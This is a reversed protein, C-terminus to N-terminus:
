KEVRLVVQVSNTETSKIVLIEKEKLNLFAKKTEEDFSENGLTTGTREFINGKIGNFNDTGIVFGSFVKINIKEKNFDCTLKTPTLHIRFPNLNGKSTTELVCNKYNPNIQAGDLDMFVKYTEDVLAPGYIPNSKFTGTTQYILGGTGIEEKTEKEIKATSFCGSFLIAVLPSLLIIKKM